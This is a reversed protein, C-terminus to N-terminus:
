GVKEAQVPEYGSLRYAPGGWLLQGDQFVVWDGPRLIILEEPDDVIVYPGTMSERVPYQLFMTGEPVPKGDPWQFQIAEVEPEEKRRMRM